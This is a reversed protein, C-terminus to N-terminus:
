LFRGNHGAKGQLVASAPPATICMIAACIDRHQPQFHPRDQNLRALQLVCPLRRSDTDFATDQSPDFSSAEVLFVPSLIRAWVCESGVFPTIIHKAPYTVRSFTAQCTSFTSKLDELLCGRGEDLAKVTSDSGTLGPKDGEYALRVAREVMLM